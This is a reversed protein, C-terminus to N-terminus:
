KGILLGSRDRFKLFVPFCDRRGARAEDCELRLGRKGNVRVLFIRFLGKGEGRRRGRPM